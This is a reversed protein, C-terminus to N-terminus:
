YMSRLIEIRKQIPPHTSLASSANARPFNIYLCQLQQGGLSDQQKKSYTKVGGIKELASALGEAYGCLRVAYADAAYERKRSISMQILQALLAAIPRLLLALLTLVLIVLGANGGGQQSQRSNGRSSFFALRSLFLSLVMIVSVLSIAISTLLVDRHVIHSIEHAIVGEMERKDLTQMLGQTVGVFSSKETLGSAFANPVDSPVIYVDPTKQLGASLSIGEVLSIVMAEQENAPDAKKGRTMGLIAARATIIQIPIVILTIIMGFRIGAQLDDYLYHGIGMSLLLVIVLLLGVLFFSKIVNKRVQETTSYNKISETKNKM